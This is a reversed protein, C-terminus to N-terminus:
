AFHNRTGFPVCVFPLNRELAVAAVAGLSGDGGAMGLPGGEATRALEAPDDGEALVLTLIGRESAAELLEETGGDGSRPNVILHGAMGALTASPRERDSLHASRSMRDDARSRIISPISGTPVSYEM